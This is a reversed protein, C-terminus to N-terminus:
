ISAGEFFSQFSIGFVFALRMSSNIICFLRMKNEANRESGRALHALAAAM